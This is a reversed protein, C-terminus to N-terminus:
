LQKGLFALIEDWARAYGPHGPLELFGHPTGELEVYDHEIAGSQLAEHLERSQSMIWDLDGVVILTRPLKGAAHLPSLRVDGDLSKLDAPDAYDFQLKVREFPERASPYDYIGYLLVGAKALHSDDTVLVASALNAGASDGLVAIRSLDGGYDGINARCWQLAFACDEYAAPFRHKPARRYDVTVVVYGESALVAAIGRQTLHNGMTWAGGHLHIVVPAAQAGPWRWVAARLDWSDTRRIVVKEHPPTDVGTNNMLEDYSTLFAEANTGEPLTRRVFYSVLEPPPSPLESLATHRHQTQM